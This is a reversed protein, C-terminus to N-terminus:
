DVEFLGECLHQHFAFHFHDGYAKKLVGNPDRDPGIDTVYVRGNVALVKSMRCFVAALDHSVILITMERDMNLNSLRMYFRKQAEADIGTVPEDLILVMPHRVMAKAVFARQKQGGSLNGLRIDAIDTIGMYGLAKDVHEWDSRKLRRGLNERTIRGLGVLERVSLPFNEDFNISHQSVYAIREWHDFHNIPEGFLKVEGEEIPLIGLIAQLLTSKGGGNPGVIGVYDGSNIQFSADMIVEKGSRNVSLDNVEIVPKEAKVM